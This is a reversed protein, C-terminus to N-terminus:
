CRPVQVYTVPEGVAHDFSLPARDAPVLRQTSTEVGRSRAYPRAERNACPSRARWILILEETESLWLRGTRATGDEFSKPARLASAPLQHGAPVSGLSTASQDSLGGQFSGYFVM